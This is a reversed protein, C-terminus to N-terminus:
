LGDDILRICFLTAKLNLRMHEVRSSYLVFDLSYIAYKTALPWEGFSTLDVKSVMALIGLFSARELREGLLREELTMMNGASNLGLPGSTFLIM